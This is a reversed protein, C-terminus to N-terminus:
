KKSTESSSLKSELEALSANGPNAEKLKNLFETAERSRGAGALARVISELARENQPNARLVKQFEAAAKENQPPAAYLFTLGLDTRADADAPRLEVAKQYFGRAKEINKNKEEITEEGSSQSMEFHISGLAVITGYDRPNKEHVRTLLRAVEGLWRPEQKMMAYQYLGMALGKQYDINEPDADADAIKRRIEEETLNQGSETQAAEPAAGKLRGIEARLSDIERRNFANALLFGGAFSVLVAVLSLWFFKGNM